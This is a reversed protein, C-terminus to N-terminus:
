RFIDMIRFREGNGELRPNQPLPSLMQPSEMLQAIEEILEGDPLKDLKDKLLYLCWTLKGVKPDKMEWNVQYDECASLILWDEKNQPSSVAAETSPIEFVKDTGRYVPVDVNAETARSSGGSHCADVVVLIQGNEGIRERIAMLLANIEDDCLHRSGNDEECYCLYADYPIWSEDMGDDPEDGDVDTMQQGHGSFHIYVADDRNCRAALETLASVIGQKTADRDRLVVIDSFAYQNLIECVCKVDKDVNIRGWSADKQQGVGIVVAHKQIAM